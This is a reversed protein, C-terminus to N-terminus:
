VNDTNEQARLALGHAVSTFEHGGRINEKGFRSSFIRRVAPVFSSGGTLFVRDVDRPDISSSRFLSDVSEEIAKLDDAIWTEFDSRTIPIRLDLGGDHFRFEAVENQSLAFKV